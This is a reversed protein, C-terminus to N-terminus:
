DRYRLKSLFRAAREPSFDFERAKAKLKEFQMVNDIRAALFEETAEEKPDDDSFWRSLTSGLVGSLIARKSYFNFDTSPDGMARWVADASRWLLRAGLAAHQPLALMAGARRAAEKDPRMASLRARVAFAVKQRIKLAAFDPDAMADQMAEDLRLSWYDLVDRVGNPFSAALTARDVGSDAAAARLMLPTFGEFPARALAAPLLARRAPEFADTAADTM